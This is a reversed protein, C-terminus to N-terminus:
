FDGALGLGGGTPLLVPSWTVVQLHSPPEPLLALVVGTVLAAGALGYCADAGLAAM